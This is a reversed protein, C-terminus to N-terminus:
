YRVSVWDNNLRSSNENIFETSLTQYKSVGYWDITNEKEKIFSLPLQQYRVLKISDIKKYNERIFSLPLQQYEVLVDYLTEDFRVVPYTTYLEYFLSSSNNIFINQYKAIFSLQFFDLAKKILSSPLVQYKVLLLFREKKINPILTQIFETSLLNKRYIILTDIDFLNLNSLIFGETLSLQYASMIYKNPKTIGLENYESDTLQLNTLLINNMVNLDNKLTERNKIFQIVFSRSIETEEKIKVSIQFQAIYANYKKESYNEELNAIPINIYRLLEKKFTENNLNLLNFSILQTYTVDKLRKNLALNEYNISLNLIESITPLETPNAYLSALNLFDRKDKNSLSLIIEELLDIASTNPSYRLILKWDSLYTKQDPVYFNNYKLLITRNLYDINDSIFEDSVAQYKCFYDINLRSKISEFNRYVGNNDKEEIYDVISNFVVFIKWNWKEKFLEIIEKKYKTEQISVASIKNWDLGARLFENKHSKLATIQNELILQMFEITMNNEKRYFLKNHNYM